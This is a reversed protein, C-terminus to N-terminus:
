IFDFGAKKMAEKRLRCFDEPFFNIISEAQDTDDIFMFEKMRELEELIKINNATIKGIKEQDGVGTQEDMMIKINNYFAAEFSVYQAWKVSHQAKIYKQVFTKTRDDGISIALDAESVTPFNCLAIASGKRDSLDEKRLPSFRDYVLAVYGMLPIDSIMLPVDKFVRKVNKNKHFEDELIDILMKSTGEIHKITM